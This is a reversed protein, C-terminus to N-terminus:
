ESFKASFVFVLLIHGWSIAKSRFALFSGTKFAEQQGKPGITSLELRFIRFSLDDTVLLTCFGM